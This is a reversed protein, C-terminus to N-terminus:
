ILFLYQIQFPGKMNDILECYSKRAVDLMDNVGNKIAFCRQMNSSTYGVVCQAGEHVVKLIQDLM